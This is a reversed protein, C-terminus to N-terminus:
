HQAKGQERRIKMVMECVFVLRMVLAECCGLILIFVHVPVQDTEAMASYFPAIFLIIVSVAVAAAQRVVVSFLHERKRNYATVLM